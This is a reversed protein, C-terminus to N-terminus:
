VPRFHARQWLGSRIEGAARLAMRMFSRRRVQGMRVQDVLAPHLGQNLALRQKIEAHCGTCKLKRDRGGGIHCSTCHTPGDLKTHAKSLPGPSFQAFALAPFFCLAFLM